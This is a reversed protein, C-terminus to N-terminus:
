PTFYCKAYYGYMATASALGQMANGDVAKGMCYKSLSYAVVGTCCVTSDSTYFAAVYYTDDLQKAAIGTIRAWYVGAGNDEMTMKGTANSPMLTAAANYDQATWYCFTIDADIAANPTFYYNIAFAGEFSVTVSKKSFGTATATLAGVKNPEAPVAGTFLGADYGMVLAQQAETLERNMLSDTNYGFYSQAAAGYNLMAVCLAKQKASTSDKGLMNMSYKKPSYDYIKSYVCTGDTRKAYAAYYRVDGMKKAAIGDTTAMYRDKVSDYVPESYVADARAYDAADPQSYFVLMGHEAIQSMDSVTYYMNVLIEDEFSLTFSKISVTVSVYDPDAAGCSRCTGDAYSHGSAAVEEAVYSDGCTCVYTTYGATECTPATVVATYRHTHATTTFTGLKYALAGTEANTVTAYWAYDTEPTLGTVNLVAEGSDDNRVTGWPTTDGVYVSFSDASITHKTGDFDVTLLLTDIDARNVVGSSKKKALAALDDVGTGDYYNFDDYYPSYANIYVKDRDIDFYLFKIYQMGGQTVSQYDTCIQYVTREKVGDGNDDFMATQYTAGSYHGNLVAFVNPNKAVVKDRVLVGYYDLYGDMSEYVHTYAHLCLIAKRDSYKALIQNMWDIEDQYINWSMYVIIFDQGNQSILDYHGYNNEYSGGFTPQDKVRWDGFYAYYLDRDDLTLAVDHNGALVGYPMGADDLIQMAEDASEWQYVADWDDVIDGTHMVYSIKWEERHDVIWRNMRTYHTPYRQVYGQTDSVWAFAFDYDAPRATGDWSAKGTVGDTATDTDPIDSDMCQVMLTATGNEVYDGAAFTANEIVGDANAKGVMDWAHTKVNLAYLTAVHRSDANSATGNWSAMLIRDSNGEGVNVTYTIYPVLGDSVAATIDAAGVPRAPYFTTEAASGSRVRLHLDASIDTVNEVGTQSLSMSVDAVQFTVSKTNENGAADCAYVTLTHSGQGLAFATTAYPLSIKEGDLTAVVSDLTNSETIKPDLLIDGTLTMASTLGLNIIPATNDVIFNVTKSDTGNTVKLTHSGETLTTTDVKVGIATADAAPISFSVDMYPCCKSSDGVQHLADYATSLNTKASTDVGGYSSPGIKTPLYAKGNPLKMQMNTVYYDDRNASPVLTESIAAGYTGAWFRLTVNYASSTSNYTFHSNDIHVVQGPLNEWLWACLNKITENKTTTLLDNFEPNREESYFSFYGGDELMKMTTQKFGDIYIKTATNATGDNATISVTGRVEEGESINTRIGDVENLNEIDVRFIGCVSSRHPNSALVYFEVYDQDFLKEATIVPEYTNPLRIGGDAAEMWDGTGNFRYYMTTVLRPMSGTFEYFFRLKLEEGQKITAPIYEGDFLHLEIFEGNDFTYDFQAEDYTGMTTSGSATHLLMQPGDPNIRLIASTNDVCDEAHYFFTSVPEQWTGDANRRYLEVGRNDNSMGNQNVAIYVPVDTPISYASRFDAETPFRSYGSLFSERYFWIV